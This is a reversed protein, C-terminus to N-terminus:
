SQLRTLRLDMAFGRFDLTRVTDLTVREVLASEYYTGKRHGNRFWAVVAGAADDLMVSTERERSHTAEEGAPAECYEIRVRVSSEDLSGDGTGQQSMSDEVAWVYLTRPRRKIPPALNDDREAGTPVPLGARLEDVLPVVQSM